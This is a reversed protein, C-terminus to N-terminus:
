DKEDRNDHIELLLVRFNVSNRKNKPNSLQSKLEKEPNKCSGFKLVM